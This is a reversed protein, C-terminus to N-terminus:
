AQEDGLEVMKGKCGTAEEHIAFINEADNRACREADESHVIAELVRGCTDCAFRITKKM